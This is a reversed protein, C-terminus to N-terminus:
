IIINKIFYIFFGLNLFELKILNYQELNETQLLSNLLILLNIIYEKDNIYKISEIIDFFRNKERKIFKYYNFSTLVM